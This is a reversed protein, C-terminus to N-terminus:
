SGVGKTEVAAQKLLKTLEDSLEDAIRIVQQEQRAADRQALDLEYGLGPRAKKTELHVVASRVFTLKQLLHKCCSTLTDVQDVTIM